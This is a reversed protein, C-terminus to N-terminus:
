VSDAHATEGAAADAPHAADAGRPHETHKCLRPPAPRAPLHVQVHAPVAVLVQEPLLHRPHARQVQRQRAPMALQRHIRQKRPVQRHNCDATKSDNPLSQTLSRCRIAEKSCPSFSKDWTKGRLVVNYMSINLPKMAGVCQVLCSTLCFYVLNIKQHSMIKELTVVVAHWTTRKTLSVM